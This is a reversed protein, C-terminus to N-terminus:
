YFMSAVTPIVMALVLLIVIVASIRQNRKKNNMNLMVFEQSGREPMWLIRCGSTVTQRVRYDMLRRFLNYIFNVNKALKIGKEEEMGADGKSYQVFVSAQVAPCCSSRFSILMFKPNIPAKIRKVM